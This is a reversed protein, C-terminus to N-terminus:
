TEVHISYITFAHTFCRNRILVTKFPPVSGIIRKRIKPDILASLHNKYKSLKSKEDETKIIEMLCM